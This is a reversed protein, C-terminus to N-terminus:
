KEERVKRILYSVGNMKIKMEEVDFNEFMKELEPFWKFPEDTKAKLKEIGLEDEIQFAEYKKKM